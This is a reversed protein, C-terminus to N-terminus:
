RRALIRRDDTLLYGTVGNQTVHTIVLECRRGDAGSYFVVPDLVRRDRVWITRREPM